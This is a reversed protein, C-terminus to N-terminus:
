VQAGPRGGGAQVRWVGNATIFMPRAHPPRVAPAAGYEPMFSKALASVQVLAIVHVAFQGIVSLLIYFNFINPQPRQKSLNEAPQACVGVARASILSVRRPCPSM